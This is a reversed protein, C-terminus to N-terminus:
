REDGRFAAVWELIARAADVRSEIDMMAPVLPALELARQAQHEAAYLTGVFLNWRAAGLLGDIQDRRNEAAAITGKDKIGLIFEVERSLAKAPAHTPDHRLALGLSFLCREFDGSQFMREAARYYQEAPNVYPPPPLEPLPAPDAVECGALVLVMVAWRM